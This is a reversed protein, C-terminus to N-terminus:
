KTPEAPNKSKNVIFDFAATAIDKAIDKAESQEYGRHRGQTKLLFCRLGTDHNNIADDFCSEELEDLTRERCDQLLQKLESDKDIINRICGRTTGIVDAVRSVNGRHEPLLRAILEKDIPIGPMPRRAKEGARIKKTKNSTNTM